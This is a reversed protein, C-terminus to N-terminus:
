IPTGPSMALAANMGEFIPAAGHKRAHALEEGTRVTWTVLPLGGSVDAITELISIHPGIYDCGMARASAAKGLIDAEVQNDAGVLLGVPRDTVLRCLRAVTPEDFSMVALCGTRGAIKDAVRDALMGAAGDVKLEILVPLDGMIDLVSALTPITSGDPLPWGSLEAAAIRDIRERHNCMRQLSADHFVVPVEDSTLRVDLEVGVGADAAAHFAALSNEPLAADWLGRHAYTYASVDFLADSM